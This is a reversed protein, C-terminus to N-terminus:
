SHFAQTRRGGVGRKMLRGALWGGITTAALVGWGAPGSIGLLGTAAKGAIQGLGPALSQIKALLSEHRESSAIELRNVDVTRAFNGAESRPLFASLENRTVYEGRDQKNQEVLAIRRKLEELLSSDVPSGM